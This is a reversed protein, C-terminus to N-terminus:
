LITINNWCFFRSRNTQVRQLQGCGSVATSLLTRLPKGSNLRQSHSTTLDIAVHAFPRWEVSGEWGFIRNISYHCIIYM